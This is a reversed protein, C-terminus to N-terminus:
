KWNHIHSYNNLPRCRPVPYNSSEAKSVPLSRLESNVKQFFENISANLTVAPIKSSKKGLTTTYPIKPCVNALMAELDISDILDILPEPTPTEFEVASEEALLTLHRLARYEKKTM